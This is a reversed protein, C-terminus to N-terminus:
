IRGARQLRDVLEANGQQVAMYVLKQNREMDTTGDIHITITQNIDGAGGAGGRSALGRIVEAQAKPLVMEKEHLQTVPNVGGPIDYGGEASAITTGIVVGASAYGMVRVAIALPIGLAGGMALAKAAAVETNMIIEAVAIAKNAFFLAKGLATQEMGAQRLIDYLQSASDGAIGVAQQSFQMQMQAKVQEHRATEAEMLANAEVVNELRADHFTQLLAIRNAYAYTEHDPDTMLDERIREVDARNKEEARVADEQAKKQTDALEKQAKDAEKMADNSQQLGVAVAALAAPVGEQNLRYELVAADSAGYTDVQERLKLILKQTEEIAKEADTKEKDGASYTLKKKHDNGGEPTSAPGYWRAEIRGQMAQEMGNLPKTWLASIGEYAEAVAANRKALAAEINAIPSGGNLLVKAAGVPNVNESVTNMLQVNAIAGKVSATVAMFTRAVLIAGDAMRALVVAVDDGWGSFNIDVVGNVENSVDSMAGMFDITAPLAASVISVVMQDYKVKMRGLDDQYQSAAQAAGTTAGTFKDINEAVDNMYPLLQAGSKGMLEQALAVKGAGDEYNQLKNAIDVFVQAPDQNKIDKASIGIAQLAKSTKSGKEDVETLNKALKVIAADVAGFDTGTMAAVQGLKSLNEVSSGTKQAMDDLDALAGIAANAQGVLADVSLAVGLAGLAVKAVNVAGSIQRMAQETQQSARGMDSTFRAINAELNVVLSGMTSSM